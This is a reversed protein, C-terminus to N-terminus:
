GQRKEGRGRVLTVWFWGFKPSKQGLGFASIHLGDTEGAWLQEIGDPGHV